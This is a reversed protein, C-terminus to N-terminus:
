QSSGLSLGQFTQNRSCLSTQKRCTVHCRDIPLCKCGRTRCCLSTNRVGRLALLTLRPTSAMPCPTQGSYLNGPNGLAKIATTEKSRVSTNFLYSLPEQPSGDQACGSCIWLCHSCPSCCCGLACPQQCPLVLPRLHQEPCPLSHPLEPLPVTVESVESCETIPHLPGPCLLWQVLLSSAFSCPSSM